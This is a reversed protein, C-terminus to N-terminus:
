RLTGGSSSLEDEGSASENARISTGGDGGAVKTQGDGLQRQLEDILKSAATRSLGSDFTVGAKAALNVLHSAQANTMAEESVAQKDTGRAGREPQAVATPKQAAKTRDQEISM